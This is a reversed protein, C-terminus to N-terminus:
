CTSSHVHIGSVIANGQDTSDSGSGEKKEINAIHTERFKLIMKTSQLFNDKRKCIKQLSEVRQLLAQFLSIVCM